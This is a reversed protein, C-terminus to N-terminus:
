LGSFAPRANRGTVAPITIPAASECTAILAMLARCTGNIPIASAQRRARGAPECGSARCTDALSRSGPRRRIDIPMPRTKTGSVSIAVVFMADSSAPSAEPSRFVVWCTPPASPRAIREVSAVLLVFVDDIREPM